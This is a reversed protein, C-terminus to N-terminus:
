KLAEETIINYIAEKIIEGSTVPAVKGPISLSWIVKVGLQAAVSLDVGGPKSSIDIILCDRKIKNLLYEDLILSPVTNIILDYEGINQLNETHASQLGQVKMWAFDSYKRASATVSAGLAQLSKALVKGCRGYGIVLVKAGHITIPLEEMAIQIAGEATPIANLISLEERELYDIIRFGYEKAKEYTNKNVMGGVVLQGPSVGRYLEEMLLVNRSFPTNLSAGDHTVPLPLIVCDTGHVTEGLNEFAKAGYNIHPSGDFGIIRVEFGDQALMDALKQQRLDGGAVAFLLHQNM